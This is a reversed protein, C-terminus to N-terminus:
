IDGIGSHGYVSLSRMKEAIELSPLYYNGAQRYTGGMKEYETM